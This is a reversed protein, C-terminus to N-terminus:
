EFTWNDLDFEEYDHFVDDHEATQSTGAAGGQQTPEYQQAGRPCKLKNRGPLKCISCNQKRRVRIGSSSTAVRSGKTAARVPNRLTDNAVNGSFGCREQEASKEARCEKLDTLIRDREINYKEITEAKFCSVQDYWGNLAARRASRAADWTEYIEGDEGCIGDKAGKTWRKLVLTDLIEDIGLHDLVAIIHECPLGRSEMKLCGCKFEKTSPYVSVRCEYSQVSQCRVKFITCRVAQTYGIVVLQSARHLVRRFLFFVRRTYVIAAYSELSQLQSQMVPDGHISTFDDEKEKFRMHCRSTTRFGGFFKGRLYTTSWMTRKEFLGVVWPNEELGFKTIIENWKRRFTAIDYYRLMCDEFAKTFEYTADFALVEGYLKYDVQSMGDSWFLHQLRGEADVTHEFYMMTDILRLEGLFQIAGKADSCVKRRKIMNNMQVVDSDGMKRYAPLMSCHVAWRTVVRPERVTDEMRLGRDERTGARSCLFEKQYVELTKRNRLTRGKRISFGNAKAYEFYFKCAVDLNGFEWNKIEHPSFLNLEGMNLIDDENNMLKKGGNNNVKYESRPSVVNEGKDHGNGNEGEDEVVCKDIWTEDVVFVGGVEDEVLFRFGDENNEFNMNM